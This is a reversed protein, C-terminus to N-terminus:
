RRSALWAALAEERVIRAPVDHRRGAEVCDDWEPAGNFVTEGTFGVKVQVVGFRTEVPEFRRDLIERAVAHHRVGLTPTERFLVETVRARRASPVLLGLLHAPRGKKMTVPAIWADLAGAELGAELARALVQPSADDLNCEMVLLDDQGGADRALVARLVNAADDFDRHGIGYGVREPVYATTPSGVTAVALIAAGTPTTREGPGSPRVPRGRLLELTAPAPVPIPGHRTQAIGGGVPPPLTHVRDVGLEDLAIAVGVLDVISDVAGVEHFHVHDPTTRHVRAEAIALREFFGLALEEARPRLSARLILERIEPWSREHEHASEDVRVDVRTGGIGCKEAQTVDLSWGHLGLRALGGRIVDAPVGLDILAALSMDGSCGGVPELLLFSSM